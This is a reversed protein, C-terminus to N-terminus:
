PKEKGAEASAEFAGVEARRKTIWHLGFLFVGWVAAFSPIKSMVEWTLLPLPQRPIDTKMGLSEFPVGALM